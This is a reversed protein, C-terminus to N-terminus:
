TCLMSCQWIWLISRGARQFCCCPNAGHPQPVTNLPRLVPNCMATGFGCGPQLLWSHWQQVCAWTPGARVRGVSVQSAQSARFEQVQKQRAVTGQLDRMKFLVSNFGAAALPLPQESSVLEMHLGGASPAMMSLYTKLGAVTTSDMFSSCVVVQLMPAAAALSLLVDVIAAPPTVAAGPHPRAQQASACCLSLLGSTEREALHYMQAM